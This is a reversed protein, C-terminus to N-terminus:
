KRGLGCFRGMVSPGTKMAARFLSSPEGCLGRTRLLFASGSASARTVGCHSRFICIRRRLSPEVRRFATPGPTLRPAPGSFLAKTQQVRYGLVGQPSLTIRRRWQRLSAAQDKGLVQLADGFFRTQRFESNLSLAAVTQYVNSQIRVPVRTGLSVGREEFGFRASRQPRTLTTTVTKPTNFVTLSPRLRWRGTQVTAAGWLRGDQWYANGRYRWRGLPDNGAMGLGVGVGLKEFRPAGPLDAEDADYAFSPYVMRPALHRWAAYPRADSFATTDKVDAAVHRAPPRPPEPGHLVQAPDVTPAEKPRFPMRVLEHREHQYEVFAVTSRDPSLTPELAGFPVNTLRLVKKTKTDFAYVNPVGTLDASFLLYRGLPGWCVDYIIADKLGLWPRVRVANPQQHDIRYLRQTGDVNLLIAVRHGEPSPAIQKFRTREFTSLPQLGRGEQRVWQNFAGDNQIVWLDGNPAEV